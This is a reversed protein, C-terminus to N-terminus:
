IKPLHQIKSSIATPYVITMWIGALIFLIGAARSLYRSKIMKELFVFLAIITIWLLNMIGAVFLLAMLAWCCGICYLGHKVGMLLAGIKGEKWHNLVFSLPSQCNKLCVDKANTFQYIGAAILVGASAFPNMLKLGDSIASLNHLVLQLLSAVLSFLTLVLVYGLVFIWTPAFSKKSESRKRNVAFFVLIMPMASPLMMAVMMVSWMAFAAIFDGFSWKIVQVMPMEKMSAASNSLHFMYAWSIAILLILFFFVIFHEKKLARRLFINGAPM